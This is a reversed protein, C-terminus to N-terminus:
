EASEMRKVYEDADAISRSLEEILNDVKEEVRIVEANLAMIAKANLNHKLYLVNDRLPKLAPELRDSAIKMSAMMAAYEMKAKDLKKESDRRLEQNSYDSLESKWEQFLSVAVDRVKIVRTKVDEASKESEDLIASLKSYKSELDGGEVNVVSKYEELANKFQEKADVQSNRAAKIRKIFLDRKEIGIKELASFYM